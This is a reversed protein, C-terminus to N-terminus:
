QERFVKESYPNLWGWVNLYDLQADKRSQINEYGGLYVGGLAADNRM